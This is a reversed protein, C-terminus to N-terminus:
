KLSGVDTYYYCKPVFCSDRVERYTAKCHLGEKDRQFEDYSGRSLRDRVSDILAAVGPIQLRASKLVM